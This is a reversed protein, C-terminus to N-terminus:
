IDINFKKALDNIICEDAMQNAKIYGNLRENEMRLAANVKEQKEIIKLVKPLDQAMQSVFKDTEVLKAWTYKAKFTELENNAKDASISAAWQKVLLYNEM